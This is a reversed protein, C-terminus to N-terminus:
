WFITCVWKGMLLIKKWAHAGTWHSIPPSFGALLAKFYYGFVTGSRGSIIKGSPGLFQGSIIKESKHQYSNTTSVRTPCRSLHYVVSFAILIWRFLLLLLLFEDSCCVFPKHFHLRSDSSKKLGNKFGNTFFHFIWRACRHLVWEVCAFVIAWRMFFVAM